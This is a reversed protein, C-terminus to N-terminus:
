INNLKSAIVLYKMREKIRSDKNKIPHLFVVGAFEEVESLLIFISIIEPLL